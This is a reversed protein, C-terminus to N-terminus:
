KNKSCGLSHGNRSEFSCEKCVRNKVRDMTQKSFDNKDKTKGWKKEEILIDNTKKWHKNNKM